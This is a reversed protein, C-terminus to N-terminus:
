IKPQGSFFAPLNFREVCTFYTPMLVLDMPIPMCTLAMFTDVTQTCTLATLRISIEHNLRMGTGLVVSRSASKTVLACVHIDVLVPHGM